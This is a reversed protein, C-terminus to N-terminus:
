KLFSLIESIYRDRNEVMISHGSNKVVKLEADPLIDVYEYTEKWPIYDCEGKLILVPKNINKMNERLSMPIEKLSKGTFVACYGGPRGKPLKANLTDCVMAPVFLKSTQHIMGDVKHDSGIITNGTIVGLAVWIKERLSIAKAINKNVRAIRDEISTLGEILISDYKEELLSDTPKIGGPSTLVLQNVCEPQHVAFYTALFGGWSQGVLVIKEPTITNIIEKLDNTHRKINYEKPNKLRESLGCGVQDYLYTEYGNLSIEEFTSITLDDIYGGPGGHLYILTAKVTDTKSPIHTYAIKSGTKLQWYKTSERPTDNFDSHLNPLLLWTIVSLLGALITLALYKFLKKILKM